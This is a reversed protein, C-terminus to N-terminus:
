YRAAAGDTLRIYHRFSADGALPTPVAEAWGNTDLFRAIEADREAM